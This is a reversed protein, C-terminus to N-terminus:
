NALQQWVTGFIIQTEAFLALCCVTEFIIQTKAYSALCCLTGFIIQTESCLALCCASDWFFIQTEANVLLDLTDPNSCLAVTLTQMRPWIYSFM